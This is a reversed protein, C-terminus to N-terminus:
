SRAAVVIDGQGGVDLTTGQQEDGFVTLGLRDPLHSFIEQGM